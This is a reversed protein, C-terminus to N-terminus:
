VLPRTNCYVTYVQDEVEYLPIFEIDRGGNSLVYHSQLWPWAEYSHESHRMLVRRPDDYLLVDDSLAALVVPGEMVAKKDPRDAPSETSLEFPFCIKIEQEDWERDIKLFGDKLVDETIFRREGGISIVPMGKIWSPIRLKLMFRQPRGTRLSVSFAWRSHETGDFEQFLSGTGAYKMENKLEIVVPTGSIKLEARSPIYQAITLSDEDKYYILSNVMSHAQVMTGHCCWFDRTRSGWTKKKGAAMPLFYAPMGTRPDQQALFGNYLNREIYDAYVKDGTFRFLCDALRVMNYVTCFEQDREGAYEGLMKPPIWFEGSNAAGTCYQGRRDVACEWFAKLIDLWEERRKVEYIKAAGIIWPISANSHNASLPDEGSKLQTFMEPHQYRKLLGRYKEEGSLRYLRVWIELMGGSEGRYAVKTDITDAKEFWDVYWDSLHSVITLAPDYGTCEYTDLLGMFLKHMTYQPSWIYQGALLLEFYKEPIPGVWRGGNKLQYERLKDIINYLRARLVRDNESRVLYAAASMWHGLFHGRLQCSPAEWGWHLWSKDPDEISQLGELQEGAELAYNQLLARDDLSLLYERNLEMRKRFLGPLLRVREPSVTEPM